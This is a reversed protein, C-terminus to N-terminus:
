DIGSNCARTVGSSGSAAESAESVRILLLHIYVYSIYPV